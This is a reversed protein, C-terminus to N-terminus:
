PERQGSIPNPRRITGGGYTFFVLWLCYSRLRLYFLRMLYRNMLCVVGWKRCLPCDRQMVIPLSGLNALLMAGLNVPVSASGLLSAAAQGPPLRGETFMTICFQLSLACIIHYSSMKRQTLAILDRVDERWLQAQKIRFEM